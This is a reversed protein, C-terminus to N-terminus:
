GRHWWSIEWRNNFTSLLVSKTTQRLFQLLLPVIYVSCPFLYKTFYVPEVFTWWIILKRLVEACPFVEFEQTKRLLYSSWKIKIRPEKINNKWNDSKLLVNLYRLLCKLFLFCVFLYSLSLDEKGLGLNWGCGTVLNTTHTHTHSSESSMPVYVPLSM